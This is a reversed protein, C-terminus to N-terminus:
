QGLARLLRRELQPAKKVASIVRFVCALLDSEDDMANGKSAAQGEVDALRARLQENEARAEEAEKM